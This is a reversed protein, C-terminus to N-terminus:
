RCCCPYEYYYGIPLVTEVVAQTTDLAGDVTAEITNLASNVIRFIGFTNTASLTILGILLIFKKM